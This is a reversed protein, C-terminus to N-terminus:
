SDKLVFGLSAIEDVEDEEIYALRCFRSADIFNQIQKSSYSSPIKNSTRFILMSKCYPSM